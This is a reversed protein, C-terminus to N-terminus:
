EDSGDVEPLPAPQSHPCTGWYRGCTNCHGLARGSALGFSSTSAVLPAKEVLERLGKEIPNTRALEDEAECALRDRQENRRRVRSFSRYLAADLQEEFEERNWDRDDRSLDLPGYDDRGKELRGLLDDIVRLEDESCLALRVGIVRALADIRSKDTADNAEPNSTPRDGGDREVVPATENTM